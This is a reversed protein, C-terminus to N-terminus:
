RSPCSTDNCGSDAEDREGADRCLEADDYEQIEFVCPLCTEDSSLRRRAFRQHTRDALAGHLTHTGLREHAPTPQGPLDKSLVCLVNQVQQRAIGALVVDDRFAFERADDHHSATPGDGSAFCRM